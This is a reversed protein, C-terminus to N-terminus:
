KGFKIWSTGTYIEAYGLTSNFRVMGTVPSAPRQLTTGSPLQLYGTDNVTSNKVTAM